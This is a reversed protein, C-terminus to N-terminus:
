IFILLNLASAFSVWLLYPVLLWFAKKDIKYTIFLMWIITILVLFIDVLGLLPNKLSFFFLSWLINFIFNSGFSFFVSNKQNKGSNLLSFYLSLAILIFLITWVIPFIYNPPTIPHKISEYWESSTNQSTFINGIFAVIFVIIFSIIILKWNISKKAM